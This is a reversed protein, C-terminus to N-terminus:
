TRLNSEITTILTNILIDDGFNFLLIKILKSEYLAYAEPNVEVGLTSNHQPRLKQQLSNFIRYQQVMIFSDSINVEALVYKKFFACSFSRIINYDVRHM